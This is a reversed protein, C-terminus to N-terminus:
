FCKEWCKERVNTFVNLFIVFLFHFIEWFVFWFFEIFSVYNFMLFWLFCWFPHYIKCVCVHTFFTFSMNVQNGYKETGQSFGFSVSLCIMNSVYWFVCLEVCSLCMDSVFAFRFIAILLLVLSCLLLKLHFHLPIIVLQLFLKWLWFHIFVLFCM